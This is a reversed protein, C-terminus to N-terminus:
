SEQETESADRLTQCLYILLFPLLPCSLPSFMQRGQARTRVLVDKFLHEAVRKVNCIKGCSTAFDQQITNSLRICISDNEQVQENRVDVLEIMIMRCHQRKHDEHANEIISRTVCGKEMQRFGDFFPLDTQTM